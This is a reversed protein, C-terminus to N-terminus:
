WSWLIDTVNPLSNEQKKKQTHLIKKDDSCVRKQACYKNRQLLQMTHLEGNYTDTLKFSYTQTYIQAM